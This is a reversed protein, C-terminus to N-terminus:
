HKHKARHRLKPLNLKRITLSPGFTEGNADDTGATLKLSSLRHRKANAKKKLGRTEKLLKTGMSVNLSSVPRKLAVVLVGRTLTASKVGNGNLTLGTVSGKHVRTRSFSLGKPLKISLAVLKAASRAVGVTFKVTPKGKTLGSASGSSLKPRASKPGTKAPGSGGGSGGSGSGGGGSGGSGSGGSGSCGTVTLPAQATPVQKPDGYSVTAVVLNAPPSPCSTPMHLSDFTSDIDTVQIPVSVPLPGLALTKPINTFEIDLGGTASNLVVSGTSGLQMDTPLGLPNSGVVIALGALDASSPPAVLDFTVPIPVSLPLGSSSASVSGSGVQCASNLTTSKLCAGGDISPDALLGPPLALALDNPTDSGSDTFKIDVELNGTSGATVSTPNLTVSPTVSALASPVFWASAVAVVLACVVRRM